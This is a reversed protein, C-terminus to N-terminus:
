DCNIFEDFPSTSPRDTGDKGTKDGGQSQDGQQCNDATKPVNSRPKYTYNDGQTSEQARGGQVTHFDLAPGWRPIAVDTNNGFGLGLDTDMDDIGFPDLGGYSSPMPGPSMGGDTGFPMNNTNGAMGMYSSQGMRSSNGRGNFNGVGGGKGSGMGNHNTQNTNCGYNSGTNNAFPNTYFSNNGYPDMAYPHNHNYSSSQNRASGYGFSDYNSNFGSSLNSPYGGQRLNAEDNRKLENHAQDFMQKQLTSLHGFTHNGSQESDGFFEDSTEEKFNGTPGDNIDPGPLHMNILGSSPNSRRGTNNSNFM